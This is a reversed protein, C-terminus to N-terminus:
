HDGGQLQDIVHSAIALIVPVGSRVAARSGPLNVILASGTVGAVGRSLMAAPKEAVGQRRLEEAIGPIEREIVAATGEPTRDRPGVGTGGTTVILQAGDALAERLASAVSQEGDPVVRAEDVTWGAEALASVAAPGSTDPREGRASRDSVTIVVARRAEGTM